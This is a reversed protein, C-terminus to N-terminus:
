YSVSVSTHDRPFGAWCHSHPGLAGDAPPGQPLQPAPGVEKQKSDARPPSPAPRARWEGLAQLPTRRGEESHPPPCCGPATASAAGGSDDVPKEEAASPSGGREQPQLSQLLLQCAELDAGWVRALLPCTCSLCLPFLLTLM